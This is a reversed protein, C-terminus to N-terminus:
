LPPPWFLMGAAWIWAIPVGILLKKQGERRDGMVM